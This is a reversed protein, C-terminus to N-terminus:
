KDRLPVLGRRQGDARAAHWNRRNVPDFPDVERTVIALQQDQGNLWDAVKRADAISYMDRPNHRNALVTFGPGIPHTKGGTVDAIGHRGIITFVEYRKV